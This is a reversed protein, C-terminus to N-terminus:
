ESGREAAKAVIRVLDGDNLFGAGQDVVRDQPTLGDVIEV